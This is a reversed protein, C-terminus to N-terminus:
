DEEKVNSVSWIYKNELIHGMNKIQLQLAMFANAWKEATTM